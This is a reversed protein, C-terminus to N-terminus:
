IEASKNTSISYGFVSQSELENMCRLVHEGTVKFHAVIKDATCSWCPLYSWRLVVLDSNSGRCKVIVSLRIVRAVIM